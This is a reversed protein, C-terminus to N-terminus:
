RLMSAMLIVLTRRDYSDKQAPFFTFNVSVRPLISIYSFFYFSNLHPSFFGNLSENNM